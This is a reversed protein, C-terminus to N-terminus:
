PSLHDKNCPRASQSSRKVRRTRSRQECVCV